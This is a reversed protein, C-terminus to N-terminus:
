IANFVDFDPIFSDKQTEGEQIFANRVGLDYAYNILEDYEQESVIRNLNDFKVKRVPTYQNMISIIISDQYTRYLYKIIKKSNEVNGPLLLHRVVVGKKLMGNSDYEVKGVQKIMEAIAKSAYKFYDNCNSYEKGYDDYYYKLDPLYIDILGDLMKITEVNEYGSSNYVVPISLGREKALILGKKIM